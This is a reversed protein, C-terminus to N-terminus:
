SLRRKRRGIFILSAAGSIISLWTSPEPVAASPTFTLDGSGDLTFSGIDRAALGDGKRSGDNVLELLNLTSGVAADGPSQEINLGTGFANSSPKFTSWSNAGTTPLSAVLTSNTSSAAASLGAVANNTQTYLGDAPQFGLDKVPTTNNVDETLFVEGSNGPNGAVGWQLLSNSAWGSGYNSTLDANLNGVTAGAGTQDAPIVGFNITFASTANTYNSYPGIDVLLDNASGDSIQFGLILDGSNVTVNPETARATGPALAFGAAAALAVPLLKPKM